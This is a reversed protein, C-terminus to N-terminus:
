YFVLHSPRRRPTQNFHGVAAAIKAARGSPHGLPKLCVSPFRAYPLVYRPNSDRGRRWWAQRKRALALRRRTQGSFGRFVAPKENAWGAFVGRLRLLGSNKLSAQGNTERQSPSYRVPARHLSYRWNSDGDSRWRSAPNLSASGAIVTIAAGSTTPLRADRSVRM